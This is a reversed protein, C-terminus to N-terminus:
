IKLTNMIFYFAVVVGSVMIYNFSDYLVNQVPYRTVFPKYNLNINM